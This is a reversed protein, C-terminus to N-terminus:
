LQFSVKGTYGVYCMVDPSGRDTNSDLNVRVQTTRPMNAAVPAAVDQGAQLRGVGSRILSIQGKLTRSEDGYLEITAPMGPRLSRVAQEDVFVDVWRRNCDLMQGLQAGKEVFQGQKATVQWIVGGLPAKVVAQQNQKQEIEAQKFDAEAQILEARADALSQELNQIELRQKATETELDQLRFRPSYNNGEKTRSQDVLAAQKDNQLSQIQTEAVRIQNAIQERELEARDLSALAIAGDKQLLLLRQYNRDAIRYQAQASALDALIQKLSDEIGTTQVTRQTGQEQSWTQMLALTRNLEIRAKGLKIQLDNIRSKIEQVKAQSARGLIKHNVLTLLNQNAAIVSGTSIPLATVTGEIPANIDVLTGNIVADRSIVSTLKDHLLRFSWAALGVSVTIILLNAIWSRSTSGAGSRDPVLAVKSDLM